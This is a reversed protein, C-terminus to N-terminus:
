LLSFLVSKTEQGKNAEYIALSVSLPGMDHRAM